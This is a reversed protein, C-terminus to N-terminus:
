REERPTRVLYLLAGHGLRGVRSCNQLLFGQGLTFLFDRCVDSASADIFGTCSWNMIKACRLRSQGTLGLDVHARWFVLARHCQRQGAGPFCIRCVIILSGLGPTLSLAGASYHKGCLSVCWRSSRDQRGPSVVKENRKTRGGFVVPIGHLCDIASLNFSM